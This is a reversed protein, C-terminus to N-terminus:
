GHGITAGVRLSVTTVRAHLWEFPDVSPGLVHASGVARHCSVRRARGRGARPLGDGGALVEVRGAGGHGLAGAFTPPKTIWGSEGHGSGPSWRAVASAQQQGSCRPGCRRWIRRGAWWYPVVLHGRMPPVIRLCRCTGGGRYGSPGVIRATVTELVAARKVWREYGDLKAASFRELMVSAGGPRPAARPQRPGNPPRRRLDHLPSV